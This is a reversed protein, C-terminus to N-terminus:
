HYEVCLPKVPFVSKNSIKAALGAGLDGCYTVKRAMPQLAPLCRDFSAQDGGVMIALTGDRAGVVGPCTNSLQVLLFWLIWSELSCSIASVELYRLM